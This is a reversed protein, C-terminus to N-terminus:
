NLDIIEIANIAPNEIVQIFDISIVGNTVVTNFSKLVGINLADSAELRKDYNDLVLTGNITCHGSTM